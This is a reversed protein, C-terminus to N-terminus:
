HMETVVGVEIGGGAELMPCGKALQVASELDDATILSYGSLPNNAGVSGLATAEFVPNGIDKVSGGLSEFWANWAAMGEPTPPRREAPARYTFLFTAM